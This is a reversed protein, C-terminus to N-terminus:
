KLCAGIYIMGLMREGAKEAESEVEKLNTRVLRSGYDYGAKYAIAVPTTDPYYRGLLPVLTKLESLGMFIAMMNGSAAVEKLLAENM